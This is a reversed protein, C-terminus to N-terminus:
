QSNHILKMCSMKQNCLITGIEFEKYESKKEVLFLGAKNMLHVNAIPNGTRNNNYWISISLFPSISEM